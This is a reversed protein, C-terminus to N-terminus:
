AQSKAWELPTQLERKEWHRESQEILYARPNIRLLKCTEIISYYFMAVDAGNITRYGLYNDRGKVPNRLVREALNNTLPIKADNIIETLGRWLNLTYNIAKGLGSRPLSERELKLLLEHLEDIIKKSKTKRLNALRKFSGKSRHEIEFLNDILDIVDEAKPYNSLCDFFKRRAHSWCNAVKIKRGSRFRNYGSFGDNIITGSFNGLMEEAVAGSRTTEFQFYAGYKNCMSWIFGNTSNSLIKGRTEDVHVYGYDLIEEKMKNLIPALNLYVAETQSFLTKTDIKLGQEQFQRSVRELPLHYSYKDIAVGVSFGISYKSKPRVKAPGKATVIKDCSKCRYKQRKHKKRIVTKAQLDHESSEEFQDKMLTLDANGCCPCTAETHIVDVEPVNEQHNSAVDIPPVNHPLLDKQNDKPPRSKNLSEKGKNFFRRNLMEVKDQLEILNEQNSQGVIKELEQIRNNALSLSGNLVGILENLYEPNTKLDDRIQVM